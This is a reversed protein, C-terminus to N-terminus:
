LDPKLSILILFVCVFVLRKLHKQGRQDNIWLLQFHTWVLVQVCINLATKDMVALLQLCGLHGESPSHTLLHHFM